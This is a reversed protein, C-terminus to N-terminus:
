HLKNIIQMLIKDPMNKFVHSFYKNKRYFNIDFKKSKIGYDKHIISKAFQNEEKLKLEDSPEKKYIYEYMKWYNKDKLIQRITLAKLGRLTFSYEKKNLGMIKVEINGQKNSYIDYVLANSKKFASELNNKQLYNQLSNFINIFLQQIYCEIKFELWWTRKEKKREKIIKESTLFEYSCNTDCCKRIRELSNKKSNFSVNLEISSQKKCKPCIM